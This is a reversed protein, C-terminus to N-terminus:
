VDTLSSVPIYIHRPVTDEYWFIKDVSVEYYARSESTFELKEYLDPDIPVYQGDEDIYVLEGDVMKVDYTLTKSDIGIWCVFLGIATIAVMIITICSALHRGGWKTDVKDIILAAVFAILLAVVVFTIIVSAAALFAKINM